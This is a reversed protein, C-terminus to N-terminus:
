CKLTRGVRCKVIIDRLNYVFPWDKLTSIMMKKLEARQLEDGCHIHNETELVDLFMGDADFVLLVDLAISPCDKCNMKLEWYELTPLFMDIHWTDLQEELPVRLSDTLDYVPVILEDEIEFVRDPGNNEIRNGIFTFGPISDTETMWFDGNINTIAAYSNNHIYNNRVVVNSNGVNDHIGALGCGNIDCHEILVNNCNDLGIVRGSCNQYEITGPKFHRLKLNRVTIDNGNLWLVNDYYVRCQIESAGNGELIVHDGQILYGNDNIFIGSDLLLHVNSSKYELAAEITKFDGNQGVRIKEYEITGEQAYCMWSGLFLGVILAKM